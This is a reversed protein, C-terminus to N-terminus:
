FNQKFIKYLHGRTGSESRLEFLDAFHIGTLGFIIKYILDFHLRCLDLNHLGLLSLHCSYSYESSAIYIQKSCKWLWSTVNVLIHGFCVILNSCLISMNSFHVFLFLLLTVERSTFSWHILNARKDARVVYELIIV